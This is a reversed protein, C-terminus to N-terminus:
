RGAWHAAYWAIIDVGRVLSLFAGAAIFPGYPIFDKPGKLRLVLLLAGVAGGILFALCLTLLALQWGLWLGLAAAFKIDGGGLGGRAVSAIVLLLGGALLGGSVM